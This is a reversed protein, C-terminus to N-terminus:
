RGEDGSQSEDIYVNTIVTVKENMNMMREARMKHDAIVRECIGRIINENSSIMGVKPACERTRMDKKSEGM